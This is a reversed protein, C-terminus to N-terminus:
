EVLCPSPPPAQISGGGGMGEERVVRWFADRSDPLGTAQRAGTSVIWCDLDMMDRVLTEWVIGGVPIPLLPIVNVGPGVRGAMRTM